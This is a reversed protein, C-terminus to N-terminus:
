IESQYSVTRQLFCRLHLSTHESPHKFLFVQQGKAAPGGAELCVNYTVGATRLFLLVRLLFLLLSDFERRNEPASTNHLTRRPASHSTDRALPDARSRYRVSNPRSLRSRLRDTYFLNWHSRRHFRGCHSIHLGSHDPYICRLCYVNCLIICRKRGEESKNIEKASHPQLFPRQLSPSLPSPVHSHSTPQLPTSQLSLIIIFKLDWLCESHYM